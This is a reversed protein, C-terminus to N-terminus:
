ERSEEISSPSGLLLRITFLVTGDIFDRIETLTGLVSRKFPPGPEDFVVDYTPRVYLQSKLELPAALTVIQNGRNNADTVRMVGHPTPGDFQPNGQSDSFTLNVRTAVLSLRRHKDRNSLEQLFTLPHADPNTSPVGHLPQLQKLFSKTEPPAGRLMEDIKASKNWHESWNEWSAKKPLTRISYIPFGTRHNDENSRSRVLASILYDLCARLNYVCDGTILAMDADPSVNPFQFRHQGTDFDYTGPFLYGDRETFRAIAESVSRFHIEARARKRRFDNLLDPM